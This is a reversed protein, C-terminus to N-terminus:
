STLSYVARYMFYVNIKIEMEMKAEMEMKWRINGNQKWKLHKQVSKNEM